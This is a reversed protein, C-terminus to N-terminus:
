NVLAGEVELLCPFELALEFFPLETVPPLSGSLSEDRKLGHNRFHRLLYGLSGVVVLELLFQLLDVSFDFVNILAEVRLFSLEIFSELLLVLSPRISLLAGVRGTIQFRLHLQSGLQLSLSVLLLGSQVLDLLSLLSHQNFDSSQVLIDVWEVVFDLEQLSTQPIGLLLEIGLTIPVLFLVQPPM